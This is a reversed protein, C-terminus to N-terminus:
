EDLNLLNVIQIQKIQKDYSKQTTSIRNIEEASFFGGNDIGPCIKKTKHWRFKSKLNEPWFPFTQCQLPRKEYITCRNEKLFICYGECSDFLKIIGDELSAYKELFQNLNLKLLKAIIQAEDETLQVRGEPLKCCAGCGICSFKLGNIYFKQSM